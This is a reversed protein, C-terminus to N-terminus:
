KLTLKVLVPLLMNVYLVADPCVMSSHGANPIGRNVTDIAGEFVIEGVKM